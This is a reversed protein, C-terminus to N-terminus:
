SADAQLSYSEKILVKLKGNIKVARERTHKYGSPKIPRPKLINLM